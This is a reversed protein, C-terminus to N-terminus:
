FKYRATIGYTRPQNPYGSFSLPQIPTDFISLLYRDNLLNRGWVSLELGMDSVYTLSASLDDVQRPFPRVAGIAAEQGLDIFGPLGEIVEVASEYHYASRAILQAGNGFEHTYQGSMTLAIPPVGAVKQGTLDGVGSQQFDTYEADLYTLALRLMLPEVPFVTGDFEFGTVQQEGANALLFGTGTFINSQFGTITQRFAAFNVQAPGWNGKIGLEYVESEEADAFRSGATLNPVALGAAALAQRDAPTPRSDRSLNVSPPKYGTAYSVYLNVSDSLDYAARLTFALDDDKIKGSEVANPVNQFPPLFQLAQLNLLPNVDPNNANAQAFAQSGANIAAFAQPNGGAFAGIEAATAPRGLMLANGVTTSLAQQYIGIGGVQALDITSFVDSTTTDTAFTKKDKTYNLGATLTLRDTVEFDVQGFLSIAENDLTYAEDLGQGDGFFRGIFQTPDGLLAGVTQEVTDATFAGATQSQILLDAYSRFDSGLLLDNTQDIEENFYFAGLLISAPGFEANARFEQTFTRIGLDQSNESILDASTFDSDQNTLSDVGRYATISTIGFPGYGFDIQGSVGWNEIDNTSAFNSYIVDAYPDAPDSFRGGLANVAAGTFGNQLLVTGCCDEDTKEYDGILRVKFVDSPEFLLQGRTFWRNRENTDRDLGEDRIYGDRINIGGGLSAAISDTIPGTVIGKAVMADYNGYSVEAQGGFDFQPERTTVSIVGASANKGFLTSQPGSLVEIRELDPLDNIRAASRSRYVNDVFVGVSPEIGANNAGNGFGRIIFNTNASSQLQIVRLTPVETTLDKLDRIEAREIQAETTVSVAVPVDQLTQARKTATVIIDNGQYASQAADEEYAPEAFAPEAYAPQAYENEDSANDQAFAPCSAFAALSSGSLVLVRVASFGRGTSKM